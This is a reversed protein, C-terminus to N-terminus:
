TTQLSSFIRGFHGRPLRGKEKKNNNNKERKLVREKVSNEFDIVFQTQNAYFRNYLM